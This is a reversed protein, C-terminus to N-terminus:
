APSAPAQHQVKYRSVAPPQARYPGAPQHLSAPGCSWVALHVLVHLSAANNRTTPDDPACEPTVEQTYFAREERMIWVLCGDPQSRACGSSELGRTGGTGCPEQRRSFRGGPNKPLLFSRRGLEPRAADREGHLGLHPSHATPTSDAVPARPLPQPPTSRNPGRCRTRGGTEAAM